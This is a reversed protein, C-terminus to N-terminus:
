VKIIYNLAIYPQLNNHAGDGGSNQNTATAPQNTAATSQNVATTLSSAISSQGRNFQLDAGNVIAWNVSLSENWGLNYQHSHANQIHTHADQVHNHPNQAHTHSPMEATTLTHTKAGGKKGMTNFEGQSEDWGVGARGRRDPLRFQTGSEGGTNYTTGYVAFLAAYTTRSVVAGDALLWGSPAITGGYELIVGVPMFLGTVGHVDSTANVHSNAERVDQATIGHAVTAGVTHAFATTSDVGRTVTLNLGAAATVSVAEETATGRDLILTYPYSIPLGATSAVAITTAVSTCSATLTSAPANAYHRIPM